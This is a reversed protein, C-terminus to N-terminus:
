DTPLPIIVQESRPQFYRINTGTQPDHWHFADRYELDIKEHPGEQTEVLGASASNVLYGQASVPQFQGGELSSVMPPAESRAPVPEVAVEPQSQSFSPGYHFSVYALMGLAGVLTLPILRHWNPAESPREVGQFSDKCQRELSRRLGFELPNPELKKLLSELEAESEPLDPEPLNESM